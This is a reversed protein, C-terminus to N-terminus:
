SRVCECSDCYTPEDLADEIAEELEELADAVDEPIEELVDEIGEELEELADEVTEEPCTPPADPDCITHLLVSSM